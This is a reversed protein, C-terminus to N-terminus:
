RRGVSPHPNASTLVMLQNGVEIAATIGPSGDRVRIDLDRAPTLWETVDHVAGSVEVWAIGGPQQVHAVEILRQAWREVLQQPSRAQYQIYHPYHAGGPKSVLRWSPPASTDFGPGTTEAQEVQASIATLSWTRLVVGLLGGGRRLTEALGDDDATAAFAREDRVYLVELYQPPQLPVVLNSVGDVFDTADPHVHLGWEEALDRRLREPDCTAVMVHDFEVVDRIAETADGM